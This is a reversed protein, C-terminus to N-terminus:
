SPFSDPPFYKNLVVTASSHMSITDDDSITSSNTTTEQTTATRATSLTLSDSTLHTSPDYTSDSSFSHDQLHNAMPNHFSQFFPVSSQRLPADHHQLVQRAEDVSRIWCQISDYSMKLRAELPKQTLQHRQLVYSPNEVFAAFHQQVKDHLTAMQLRVTEEITSGHVIENRHQWLNRTFAWVITILQSSWQATDLPTHKDPVYAEVAKSWLTSIRGLCFQFWGLQHDQEYYASTLIINPGHLSGYVPSKSRM